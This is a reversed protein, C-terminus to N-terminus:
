LFPEVIFIFSLLGVIQKYKLVCQKIKNFFCDLIFLKEM